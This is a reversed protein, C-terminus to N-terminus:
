ITSRTIKKYDGDSLREKIDEITNLMKDTM